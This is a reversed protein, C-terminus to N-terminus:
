RPLMAIADIEWLLIADVKLTKMFTAAVPMERM